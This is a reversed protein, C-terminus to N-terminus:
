LLELSVEARRSLVESSGSISPDLQSRFEDTVNMDIGLVGDIIVGPLVDDMVVDSRRCTEEFKKGRGYYYSPYLIFLVTSGGFFLHDESFIIHM